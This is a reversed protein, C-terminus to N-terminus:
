RRCANGVEDLLHAAEVFAEAEEVEGLGGEGGFTQAKASVSRCVDSKIRFFLCCRQIAECTPPCTSQTVPTM